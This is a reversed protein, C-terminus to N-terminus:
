PAMKAISALPVAFIQAPYDKKAVSWEQLAFLQSSEETTQVTTDKPANRANRKALKFRLLVQDVHNQSLSGPLVIPGLPVLSGSGMPVTIVGRVTEQAEHIRRAM